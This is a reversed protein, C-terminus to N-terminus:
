HLNKMFKTNRPRTCSRLISGQVHHEVNVLKVRQNQVSVSWPDHNSPGDSADSMKEQVRSMKVVRIKVHFWKFLPFKHFNYFVLTHERQALIFTFYMAFSSLYPFKVLSVSGYHPTKNRFGVILKKVSVLYKGWNWKILDCNTAPSTLM